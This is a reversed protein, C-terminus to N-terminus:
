PAFDSWTSEFSEKREKEKVRTKELEGIKGKNMIVISTKHGFEGMTEENKEMEM